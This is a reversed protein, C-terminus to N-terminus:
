SQHESALCIKKCVQTVLWGDGCRIAIKMKAAPMTQPARGFGHQARVRRICTLQLDFVQRVADNEFCLGFGTCANALANLNMERKILSGDCEVM